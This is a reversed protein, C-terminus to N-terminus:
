EDLPKIIIEKYGSAIMEKVTQMMDEFTICFDVWNETYIKYHM